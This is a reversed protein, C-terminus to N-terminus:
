STTADKGHAGSLGARELVKIHKSVANLSMSFPAAIDSVRAPGRALRHIIERRSPDALASFVTGLTDMEINKLWFKNL